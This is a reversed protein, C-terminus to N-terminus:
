KQKTKKECRTKISRYSWIFTVKRQVQGGTLTVQLNDPQENSVGLIAAYAVIVSEGGLLERAAFAVRVCGREDLVM